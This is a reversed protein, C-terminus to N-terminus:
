VFNNRNGESPNVNQQVSVVEPVKKQLWKALHTVERYNREATVFTVMAKDLAPSVKVLLYRLLGRRTLPNYIFVEQREVEERVM